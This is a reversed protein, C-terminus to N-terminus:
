CKFGASSSVRSADVVDSVNEVDSVPYPFFAGLPCSVTGEAVRLSQSVEGFVEGFGGSHIFLASSACSCALSTSHISGFCCCKVM